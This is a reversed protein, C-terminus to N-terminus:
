HGEKSIELQNWGLFVFGISAPFSTRTEKAGSTGRSYTKYYYPGFYLSLFLKRMGTQQSTGFSYLQHKMHVLIM